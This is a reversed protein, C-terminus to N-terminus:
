KCRALMISNESKQIKAIRKERKPYKDSSYGSYNTAAKEMSFSASCYLTTRHDHYASSLLLKKAKSFSEIKENKVDPPEVGGGTDAALSQSSIILLSIFLVLSTKIM